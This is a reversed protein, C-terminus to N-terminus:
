RQSRCGQVVIDQKNKLYIESFNGWIQLVVIGLEQRQTAPIISMLWIMM